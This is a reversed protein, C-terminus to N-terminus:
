ARCIGSCGSLEATPWRLDDAYFLLSQRKAINSFVQVVADFFLLREEHPALQNREPFPGLRTEIEPALKAIQIANEGLIDKLKDDDKQERVWRRFAEV